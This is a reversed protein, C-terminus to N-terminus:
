ATYAEVEDFPISYVNGSDFAIYYNGAVHQMSISKTSSNDVMLKEFYKISTKITDRVIKYQLRSAAQKDTKAKTILMNADDVNRSCAIFLIFFLPLCMVRRLYAFSTKNSTTIMAIRRKIENNFFSHA